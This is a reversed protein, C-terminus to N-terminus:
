EAAVEPYVITMDDSNCYWLVRLRPIVGEVSAIVFDLAKDAFDYSNLFAAADETNTLFESGFMSYHSDSNIHGDGQPTMIDCVKEGTANNTLTYNSLVDYRMFVDGNQKLYRNDEDWYDKLYSEEPSFDIVQYIKAELKFHVDLTYDAAAPDEAMVFKPAITEGGAILVPEYPWTNYDFDAPATSYLSKPNEPDPLFYVGKETTLYYEFVAEAQEKLFEPTVGGRRFPSYYITGITAGGNISFYEDYAEEVYENTFPSNVIEEPEMEWLLEFNPDVNIALTSGEPINGIEAPMTITKKASLVGGDDSLCSTFVLLAAVFVILLSIKKM